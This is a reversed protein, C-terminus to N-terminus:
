QCTEVLQNPGDPRQAYLDDAHYRTMPMTGRFIPVGRYRLDRFHTLPDALPRLPCTFDTRYRCLTAEFEWYPRHLITGWHQM